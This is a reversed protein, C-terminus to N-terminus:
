NSSLLTKSMREALASFIADPTEYAGKAEEAFMAPNAYVAEALYAKYRIAPTAGETTLEEIRERIASFRREPADLKLMTVIALASETLGDCETNLCVSYNRELREKQVDSYTKIIPFFSQAQASLSMAGALFVTLLVRNTKM